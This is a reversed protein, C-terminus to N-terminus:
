IRKEWGPEFLKQRVQKEQLRLRNQQGRFETPRTEWWEQTGVLYYKKIEKVVDSDNQAQQEIKICCIRDPM